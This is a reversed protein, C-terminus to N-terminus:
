LDTWADKAFMSRTESAVDQIWNKMERDKDKKAKEEDKEIRNFIHKGHVALDNEWVHRLARADLEDYPFTLQFTDGSFQISHLEYKQKLSNFVVFMDADYEEIRKPIGLVNDEVLHMFPRYQLRRFIENRKKEKM